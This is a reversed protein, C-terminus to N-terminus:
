APDRRYTITVRAGFFAEVVLGKSVRVSLPLAANLPYGCCTGAAVAGIPKSRDSPNDADYIMVTGTGGFAAAHMLNIEAAGTFVVSAAGGDVVSSDWSRLSLALLRSQYEVMGAIQDLSVMTPGIPGAPPNPNGAFLTAGVGAVVVGVAFAYARNM